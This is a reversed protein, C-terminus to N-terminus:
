ISIKRLGDKAPPDGDMEHTPSLRAPGPRLPKVSPMGSKGSKSWRRMMQARCLRPILSVGTSGAASAPSFRAANPARKIACPTVYAYLKGARFLDFVGQTSKRSIDIGVEQMARVALPNLTGPELGASEAELTDGFLHNTWAEAMQSRASNHVCVFLVRQKAL